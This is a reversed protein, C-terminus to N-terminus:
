LARDTMKQWFKTIWMNKNQSLKNVTNQKKQLNHTCKPVSKHFLSIDSYPICFSQLEIDWFQESHLYFWLSSINVFILFVTVFTFMMTLANVLM